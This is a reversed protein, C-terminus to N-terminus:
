PDKELRAELAALRDRLHSLEDHDDPPPSESVPPPSSSSTHPRHSPPTLWQLQKELAEFQKDLMVFGAVLQKQMVSVMPQAPASMRIMRHLLPVPLLELTQQSDILVQFLISRTLDQSSKADLIQVSEGARILTALDDLNIYSSTTTDYLRRNSYKKIIRM